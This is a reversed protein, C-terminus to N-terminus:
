GEENYDEEDMGRNLNALEIPDFAMKEIESRSWDTYEEKKEPVNDTTPSAPVISTTSDGIEDLNANLDFYRIPAKINKGLHNHKKLEDPDLGDDLREYSLNHKEQFVFIDPDDEFKETQLEIKRQQEGGEDVGKGRGRGCSTVHGTKHM